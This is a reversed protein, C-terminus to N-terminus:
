RKYNTMRLCGDHGILLWFLSLRGIFLENANAFAQTPPVNDISWQLPLGANTLQATSLVDYVYHRGSSYQAAALLSSLNICM